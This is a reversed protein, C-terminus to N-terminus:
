ELWVKIKADDGCIELLTLSGIKKLKRIASKAEGNGCHRHKDKSGHGWPGAVFIPLNVKVVDKRSANDTIRVKFWKVTQGRECSPGGRVARKIVTLDDENGAALVPAALSIAFALVGAWATWKKMEARGIKM